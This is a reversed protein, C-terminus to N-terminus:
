VPLWHHRSSSMISLTFRIATSIAPLFGKIEEEMRVEIPDGQKTEYVARLSYLGAGILALKWEGSNERVNNLGQPLKPPPAVENLKEILLNIETISSM